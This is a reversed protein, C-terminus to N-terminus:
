LSQAVQALNLVVSNGALQNIQAASLPRFQGSSLESLLVGGIALRHLSIVRNNVAALMRKVQHYKGENVAILYDTDNLKFLEVALCPKSEGQLLIGRELQECAQAQLPEALQMRYIKQCRKKPATIQHNWQGDTTILVMGTTDVDLRGAIQLNAPALQDSVLDIVTPYNGDSNACVVGAPKHLMWYGDQPLSIAAGDLRVITNQTLQQAAKTCIVEDVTIRKNHLWIHVQNRSAGSAHSVYKDLRM